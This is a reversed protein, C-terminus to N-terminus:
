KIYFTEEAPRLARKMWLPRRLGDFGAAAQRAALLATLNGVSGGSTLLGGAGAPLGLLDSMWRLVALEQPTAVGGMEYVAMGNNLLAALADALAAGPVPPPVQHGLYRRHHLRISGAATRTLCEILDESPEDEFAPPWATVAEDPALYPLVQDDGDAPAAMAAALHDAMRDILRHGQERFREADYARILVDDISELSM